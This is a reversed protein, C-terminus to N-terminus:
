RSTGTSPYGGNALQSAGSLYQNALTAVALDAGALDRFSGSDVTWDTDHVRNWIAVQLAARQLDTTVGNGLYGSVTFLRSLDDSLAGVAMPSATYIFREPDNTYWPDNPDLIPAVLYQTLDICFADFSGPLAVGQTTQSWVQEVGARVPIEFSGNPKDLTVHLLEGHTVYSRVYFPSGVPQAQAAGWAGVCLAAAVAGRRWITLHDM